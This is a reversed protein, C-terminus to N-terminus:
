LAVKFTGSPTGTASTPPVTTVTTVSATFPTAKNTKETPPSVENIKKKRKPQKKVAAHLCGVMLEITVSEQLRQKIETLCAEGLPSTDPDFGLKQCAAGIDITISNTKMSAQVLAELRANRGAQL